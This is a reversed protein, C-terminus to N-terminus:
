QYNYPDETIIPITDFNELPPPSAITWELSKSNWPNAPAIAGKRASYMLNYIMLILGSTLIFAGITSIFHGTHFQPLYDYYRRPMGQLGIVFLPFYLVNFGVFTIGWAINALRFSYM